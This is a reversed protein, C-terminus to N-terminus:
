GSIEVVSTKDTITGIVEDLENASLLLYGFMEHLEPDNRKADSILPVLGMIRALPARIVHSQLWSIERLKKNQDEIAKIYNLRETVDNAIIVKAQRGKYEIFNAQIDVNIVNGDKKRHRFVGLGNTRKRLRDNELSMEMEPIDEALKIDKLTMSLFEDRTYGYHKITAENVNLFQLTDLDFVLMPLPNLQFLESYKKESSTLLLESLKRETINKVYVSLGKASPYASIDYWTNLNESYFEFQAATNTDIAEQYRRLPESDLAYWYVEKFNKNIVHSKPKELIKEAMKNWYTITWNHDMAFFADTISELITNREELAETIKVREASLQAEKQLEGMQITQVIHLETYKKLQYAWLGCVFFIVAALLIHIVFTQLSFYDLQSFYVGSVGTNQLYSCIGHHVVVVILIPIQLKWKQYTILVASGIFAFFHMEFLGHMQYIFQAMFFGFVASLVYQYLSSYPLAVKASYYAALSLGGGVLAILWTDYYGALLLGVVFYGPLFYNMLRDSREKVELQFASTQNGHTSPTNMM